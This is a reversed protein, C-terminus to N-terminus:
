GSNEGSTEAATIPGLQSTQPVIQPFVPRSELAIDSTCGAIVGVDFVSRTSDIVGRGSRYQGRMSQTNRATNEGIQDGTM